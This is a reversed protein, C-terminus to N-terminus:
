SKVGEQDEEDSLRYLLDTLEQAHTKTLFTKARDWSGAAGYDVILTVLACAEGTVPHPSIEWPLRNEGYRCIQGM